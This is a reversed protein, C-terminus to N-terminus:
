EPASVKLHNPYVQSEPMCFPCDEDALGMIGDDRRMAHGLGAEFGMRYGAELKKRNMTLREVTFDDTPTLVRVVCDSPPNRIFDLSANYNDARRVMADAVGPYRGLIRKVLWPYKADPMEYGLPHSLVVTIDRAGRRYAERVPISDAVGGDTYCGGSFCPSQRYALPLACTAQMVDDINEPNIRYYDAEGTEVSTVTALMPISNFFARKDLPYVLESNFWLWRVDILDGGRAFRGPNFFAKQTALETIVKYSRGQQGALYGILTSAGASVGVAFDYPQFRKALFADLVGSAFVGRMAGGEVVLARKGYM